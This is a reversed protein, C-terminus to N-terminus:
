NGIVHLRLHMKQRNPIGNLKQVVFIQTTWNESVFIYKQLCKKWSSVLKPIRPIESRMESPVTGTKIIGNGGEHPPPECIDSDPEDRKTPTSPESISFTLFVFIEFLKGYFITVFFSGGKKFRVASNSLKPIVYFVSNM